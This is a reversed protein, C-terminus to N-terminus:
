SNERGVKGKHEAVKFKVPSTTMEDMWAEASTEGAHSTLVPQPMWRKLAGDM